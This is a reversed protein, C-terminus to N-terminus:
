LDILSSGSDHCLQGVLRYPLQIAKERDPAQAGHMQQKCVNIQSMM